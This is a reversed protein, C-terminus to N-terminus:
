ESQATRKAVERTSPKKAKFPKNELSKPGKKLRTQYLNVGVARFQFVDFALGIAWRYSPTAKTIIGDEVEIYAPSKRGGNPALRQSSIEVIHKNSKVM